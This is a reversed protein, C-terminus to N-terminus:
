VKNESIRCHAHVPNQNMGRAVYSRWQAPVRSKVGEAADLSDFPAYICAGTGTMRADGFQSLWDLAQGVEPYRERVVPECVNDGAGDLFARITIADCVRTLQEANFIEATSVAIEPQIVLYIPEPLQIPTLQEGVGSAWAAKGLVFVPVDAGLELGFEALKALSLNLAWLTNLALLCTAANSSGGGLGGGIPIHKKISIQVGQSVRYRSQLLRAARLVIDDTEDVTTQSAVRRIHEDGTVEFAMRDNLDIFQFVTQLLHYGDDRRGTIHLMLNLKAPSNLTLRTM